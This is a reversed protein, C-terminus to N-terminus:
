FDIHGSEQELPTIFQKRSRNGKESLVRIVDQKSGTHFYIQQVLQVFTVMSSTLDQSRTKLGSQYFQFLGFSMLVVLLFALITMSKVFHIKQRVLSRNRM